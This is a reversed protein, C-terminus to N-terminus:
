AAKMASRGSTVTTAGTSLPLDLKSSGARRHQGQGAAARKGMITEEDVITPKIRRSSLAKIAVAGLASASLSRLRGATGLAARQM